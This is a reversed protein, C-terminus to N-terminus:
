VKLHAPMEHTDQQGHPVVQIQATRAVKLNEDDDRYAALGGGQLFGDEGELVDQITVKDQWQVEQARYGRVVGASDRICM